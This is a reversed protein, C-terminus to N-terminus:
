VVRKRDGVVDALTHMPVLRIEVDISVDIGGVHADGSAAEAGKAALFIRGAGVGHREILSEFSSGGSVALGDRLEVDNASQMGVKRKLIEEIEAGSELLAKGLHM